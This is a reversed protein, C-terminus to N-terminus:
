PIHKHHSKQYGIGRMDEGLFGVFFGIREAVWVAYIVPPIKGDRHWRLQIYSGIGRVCVCTYGHVCGHQKILTQQYIATNYEALVSAIQTHFLMSCNMNNERIIKMCCMLTTLMWLASSTHCFTIGRNCSHIFWVAIYLQEISYVTIHLTPITVLMVCHIDRADCLYHWSRWM